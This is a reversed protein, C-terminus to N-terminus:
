RQLGTTIMATVIDNLIRGRFNALTTNRHQDLKTMIQPDIRHPSPAYVIMSCDDRKHKLVDDIDKSWDQWHVLYVSATEARGLDQVAGIRLVNKERFLGSDTLLDSLSQGNQAGAFVAIRRKALGNGMRWLVPLTGRFWLVSSVLLCMAGWFLFLVRILAFVQLVTEM